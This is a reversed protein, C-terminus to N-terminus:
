KVSIKIVLKKVKEENVKINPRHADSPFFLFYEKSTALYLKGDSIEYNAVDKPPMFPNIVKAGAVAAKGMKEQGSIVYQLDIYKQHSEWKTDEFPKDVIETITAFVEEGDIPYKGPALNVLDQNKMFNFAKDWTTKNAYYQKKFEEQNVEAFVKPKLDKSIEEKTFWNSAKKSVSCSSISLILLIAPILKM